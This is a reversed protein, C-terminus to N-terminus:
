PWNAKTFSNESLDTCGRATHTQYNSDEEWQSTKHTDKNRRSCDFNYLKWRQMAACTCTYMKMDTAFFVYAVLYLVLESKAKCSNPQFLWAFCTWWQGLQRCFHPKCVTGSIPGAEHAPSAHACLFIKQRLPVNPIRSQLAEGTHLDEGPSSGLLTALVQYHPWRRTNELLVTM